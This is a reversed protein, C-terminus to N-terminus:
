AVLFVVATIGLWLALHMRKGQLLVTQSSCTCPSIRLAIQVRLKCSDCCCSLGAQRKGQM